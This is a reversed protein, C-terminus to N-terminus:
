LGLKRRLSQLFGEEAAKKKPMAFSHSVTIQEDPALNVEFKLPPFARNRVEISHPGASLELRKLPPSTGKVVGDVAIEGRPKIEFEIFAPRPPGEKRLGAFRAALGLGVIGCVLLAGYRYLRRRRASAAAENRAFLEHTRVSPDTFVGASGLEAARAPAAAGLAEHFSRSAVFGGPAAAKALTLGAAIGDGMLGTGRRADQVLMVPGHNIGIAVPLDAAAAQSREAIQLAREPDGLIVIAAGEPADLVIRDAARLPQIAIAVLAELQAKLRTQEAVPRGAYDQIRLVIVSEPPPATATDSLATEM